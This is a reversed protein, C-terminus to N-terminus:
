LGQWCVQEPMPPSREGCTRLEQCSGAGARAGWLTVAEKMCMWRSQRPTGEMPSLHLDAGGHVEMPQLPVVQSVITKMVLQLPFSGAGADRAGGGGEKKVSRPTQLTTEQKRVERELQRRVALNKKRGKRLTIVSASGGDGILKAKALLLDMKSGALVPKILSPPLKECFGGRYVEAVLVKGRLGM